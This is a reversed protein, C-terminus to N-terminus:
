VRTFVRLDHGAKRRLRIAVQVDTVGFGNTHVEPQSLFEAAYRMQTKVVGVRGFFVLFIDVRDFAVHFPQAEFPRAFHAIGRLIEVLQVLPRNVQNFFTFGIDAVQGGLLGLFVAAAQGLRALVAREAVAADFLVKIQEGAHGGTFELVALAYQTGLDVHGRRVHVQAVRDHVADAVGM